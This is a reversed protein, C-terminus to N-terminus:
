VGLIDSRIRDLGAAERTIDFARARLLGAAALATRRPEDSALATMAAALAGPDGPPVVVAADGVLGPLNGSRSCILAAGSAMAELATLGFPEPWRSPVVVIAARAMAALVAPHPQHGSMRVGALAAARRVSASYGDRAADPRLRKAGIIEAGWGPLGPLAQACAAVFSDVGKEPVLRGAFLIARDRSPQPLPPPLTALDICNPVVVPMAAWPAPVGEMLRDRVYPSVALVRALRRLGDRAAPGAMGGMAQPDNHLFLVVPTGPLRRALALAIRPRNHVEILDPRLRRLVRAAGWAYRAARAAPLWPTLRVPQFEPAAFPQQARAAGLVVTRFPAGERAGLRQVVLGIAGVAEPSFGENPPLVVAVLRGGGAQEGSM